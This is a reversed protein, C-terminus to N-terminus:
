VDSYVLFIINILRKESVTHTVMDKPKEPILYVVIFKEPM